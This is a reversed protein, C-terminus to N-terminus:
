SWGDSGYYWELSHVSEVVGPQLDLPCAFVELRQFVFDFGIEGALWIAGEALICRVRLAALENTSDSDGLLWRLLDRQDCAIDHLIQPGREIVDRVLDHEGMATCWRLPRAERNEFRSDKVVVGNRTPLLARYIQPANRIGYHCLDLTQLWILSPIVGGIMWQPKKLFERIDVFVSPQVDRDRMDWVSVRNARM